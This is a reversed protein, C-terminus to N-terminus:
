QGFVELVVDEYSKAIFVKCDGFNPISIDRLPSLIECGSAKVDEFVKDVQEVRYSICAAGYGCHPSDTIPTGDANQLQVLRVMGYDFDDKKLTVCRASAIDTVGYSAEIESASMVYDSFINKHGIITYYEIARDIDAVVFSLSSIGSIVM